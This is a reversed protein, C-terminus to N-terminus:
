TRNRKLATRAAILVASLQQLEASATELCATFAHAVREVLAAQYDGLRGADKQRDTFERVSSVLPLSLADEIRLWAAKGPNVGLFINTLTDSKVGIKKALDATKLGRRAMEGRAKPAAFKDVANHQACPKAM